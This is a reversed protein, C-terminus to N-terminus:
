PKTGTRLHQEAAFRLLIEVHADVLGWAPNVDLLLTPHARAEAWAHADRRFEDDVWALARDGAFRRVAPL